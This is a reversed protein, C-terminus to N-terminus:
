GKGVRRKPGRGSWRYLKLDLLGNGYFRIGERELLRRQIQAGDGGSRLSIGGRHNVVRHWPVGSTEPLTAMAYGVLRPTAGRVGRAIQGYTVVRGRPVVAVAAYIRRFLSDKGSSKAM